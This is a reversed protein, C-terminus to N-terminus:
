MLTSGKVQEAVDVFLRKTKVVSGSRIGLAKCGYHFLNDSASQRISSQSALRVRLSPRAWSSLSSVPARCAYTRKPLNIFSGDKSEVGSNWCKLSTMRPTRATGLVNPRVPELPLLYSAPPSGCAGPCFCFFSFREDRCRGFIFVALRICCALLLILRFLRRRRRRINRRALRNEIEFTFCIIM